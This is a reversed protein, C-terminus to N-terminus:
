WKDWVDRYKRSEPIVSGDDDVGGFTITVDGTDGTIDYSGSIVKIPSIECIFISPAIYNKKM